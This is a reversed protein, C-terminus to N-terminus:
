IVLNSDPDVLVARSMDLVLALQEGPRSVDHSQLEAVVEKDGLRFTAYTRSGTPQVLDIRADFRVLGERRDQASARLIHEPRLGLTVARGQRPKLAAARAAPLALRLGPTLRLAPGDDQTDVTAPIFNM